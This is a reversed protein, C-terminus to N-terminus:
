GVTKTGTIDLVATAGADGGTWEATVVQGVGLQPTDSSSDGTSGWTTGGIFRGGCYVRCIAEDTVTTEQTRVAAIFGAQWTEGPSQPGIEATGNGSSDLVTQASASLPLNRSM